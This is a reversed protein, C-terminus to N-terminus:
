ILQLVAVVEVHSTYPFMDVPQIEKINYKDELLKLDRVLTAPNCSIYIVKKPEYKLINQITNNDLGRRPPDVFIVDPLQKKIRILDELTNEVDGAMFEINEISNIRANEKADEIAQEVIEIGFVKKAYKSAFIGITGIGCYLDFIIEKGTLNAKEIALNYLIETQIPNVQYFSMPSIKFTYEGLKDYIFGKGYIVINEEGLIVNTNKRNINKIVTKINSFEKILKEALKNENKLERGNIVLICMIENTHIGCELLLIDYYDKALKKM